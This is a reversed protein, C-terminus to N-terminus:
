GMSNKKKKKIVHPGEPKGLSPYPGKTLIRDLIQYVVVDIGIVTQCINM